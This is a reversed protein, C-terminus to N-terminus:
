HDEAKRKGACLDGLCFGVVFMSPAGPNESTLFRTYKIIHNVADYM